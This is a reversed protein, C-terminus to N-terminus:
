KEVKRQRSLWQLGPKVIIEHGGQFITVCAAGSVRRFVPQKEGYAADDIKMRYADLMKPSATMAAIVNDAIHDKKAAVLNFALLSHSIPVSGDHGDTIGANIDLPVGKARALWTLSSRKRYQEDIAKSAGPVGGCSAVVDKWYHRGAKKTQDHWAALDSIPVWASVGAWLKPKRGAMLLACHGGGSAGILYIRTPDINCQKRAHEVASVIDAVVLESGCAQPRKNPGRFDPGIFAWGQDVCWEAFASGPNTQKYNASWSHLGVLLPVPKSDSDSQPPAYFMAPQQTNDAASTYRIDQLPKPWDAHSDIAFPLTFMCALLTFGFRQSTATMAGNYKNQM